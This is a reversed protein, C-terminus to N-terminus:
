YTVIITGLNNLPTYYKIEYHDLFKKVFNKIKGTGTIIEITYDKYPDLEKFFLADIDELVDECTLGHYDRSLKVENM